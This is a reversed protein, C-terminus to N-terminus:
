SPRPPRPWLSSSASPPLPPAWVNSLFLPLVPYIMESSADTLLSVIGMMRVNRPTRPTSTAGTGGERMGTISEREVRRTHVMRGVSQM